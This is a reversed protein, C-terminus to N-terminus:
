LATQGDPFKGGNTIISALAISITTKGTGAQGAFIHFKGKALWGNWLWNIAEPNVDAACILSVDGKDAESYNAMDADFAELNRYDM